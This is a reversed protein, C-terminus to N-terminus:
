HGGYDGPPYSLTAPYDSTFARGYVWVTGCGWTASHMWYKGEFYSLHGEVLELGDGGTTVPYLPEGYKWPQFPHPPMGNDGDLIDSPAFNRITAYAQQNKGPVAAATGAAALIVSAVLLAASASTYRM